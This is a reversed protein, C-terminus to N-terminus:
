GNHLLELIEEKKEPKVIDELHKGKNDKINKNAGYELLLRVIETNGNLVANFLPTAGDDDRAEIDAKNDLLLKVTDINNYVCAVSL